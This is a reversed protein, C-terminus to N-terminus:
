PELLYCMLLCDEFLKCNKRKLFAICLEKLNPISNVKPEPGLPDEDDSSHWSRPVDVGLESSSSEESRRDDDEPKSKQSPHKPSNQSSESGSGAEEILVQKYLIKFDSSAAHDEATWGSMDKLSVDIGGHLLLNAIDLSKGRLAVMFATRKWNDVANVNANKKLLFEVMAPSKKNVALLLPTMDTKNKAEIDAHHSLLEATLLENENYVAYHLATNGYVDQLNPDADQELLFVACEVEQCQVAKM